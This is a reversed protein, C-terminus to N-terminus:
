ITFQPFLEELGLDDLNLEGRRNIEREADKIITRALTEEPMKEPSINRAAKFYGKLFKIPATISEKFSKTGAELTKEAFRQTNQEHRLYIKELLGTHRQYINDLIENRSQEHATLSMQLDKNADWIATRRAQLQKLEADYFQIENDIENKLLDCMSKRELSQGSDIIASSEKLTMQAYRQILEMKKDLKSQIKQDIQEIEQKNVGLFEYHLNFRKSNEMQIRLKELERSEQLLARQQARDNLNKDRSLLLQRVFVSLATVAGFVVTCIVAITVPDM